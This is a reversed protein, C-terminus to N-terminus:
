SSVSVRVRVRVSVSVSVSVSASVSVSVSVHMACWQLRLLVFVCSRTLEPVFRQKIALPAEDGFLEFRKLVRYSCDLVPCCM